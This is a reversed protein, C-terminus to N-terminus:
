APPRGWFRRPAGCRARATRALGTFCPPWRWHRGGAGRGLAPHPAGNERLFADPAGDLPLTTARRRRRPPGLSPSRSFPLSLPDLHRRPLRLDLNRRAVWHPWP